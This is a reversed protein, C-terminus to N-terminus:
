LVRGNNNDTTPDYSYEYTADGITLSGTSALCGDMIPEPLGGVKCKVNDAQVNPVDYLVWIATSGTPYDAYATGTVEAGADDVGTIVDGKTIDATTASSLTVEAYSKSHGGEEYVKRAAELGEDSYAALQEQIVYQDLDIACHDTVQSSAHHHHM